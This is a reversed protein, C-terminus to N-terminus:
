KLGPGDLKDLLNTNWVLITYGDAHYTRAPRGFTLEASLQMGPLASPGDAVVFNAYHRAPDYNAVDTEWLYPVLRDRVDQVVASLRVQSHSDVTTSNAQWYTALGDTLRHAVLWSALPENEAPVSAQAASYGLAALCGAVLVALVPVFWGKAARTWAAIRDGLVRGALVAGLPLVEAMERAGLLDQAHTSSMYAGLNLVIAVAFVPVILEGFRFIRAIGVGLACAALIAGVLHLAVFVVELVPRAGFFSTNFVNAGFLELFAQFTVWAGHQLQGLDTDAEVPSQQYGGLAPMVRPAFSGAIGAVAAAGALSLEYWRSARRGGRRILGAFARGAGVLVLPVIGTLLVISDAVMVLTFLLCVLVPVYWRPRTEPHRDILLWIALLPVATGIHDPSLLLISTASLQPALMLGAALLARALGKGGRANGKALLAALLVLLTYTMAAAAHVVWPGLGTLAEILMYQPLETTYFSVDSVWWHTLLLNGHLMDWAQLINGSGDSSLAVAQSQRWYCFFLVAAALVVLGARKARTAASTRAPRSTLAPAEQARGLHTV